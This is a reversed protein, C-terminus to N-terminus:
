NSLNKGFCKCNSKNGQISFKAKRSNKTKVSTAYMFMDGLNEFM